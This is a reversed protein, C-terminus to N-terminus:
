PKNLAETIRSAVKEDPCWAYLKNDELREVIWEPTGNFLPVIHRYGFWETRLPPTPKPLIWIHDGDANQAYQEIVRTNLLLEIADDVLDPSSFMVLERKLESTRMHGRTGLLSKVAGVVAKPPIRESM